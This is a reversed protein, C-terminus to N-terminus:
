DIIESQFQNIQAVTPHSQKSDIRKERILKHNEALQSDNM